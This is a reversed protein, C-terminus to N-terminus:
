GLSDGKMQRFIMILSRIYMAAYAIAMGAILYLPQLAFFYVGAAVVILFLAFRLGASKLLAVRDDVSASVSRYVHWTSVVVLLGGFLVSLWSQVFLGFLVASVSVTAVQWLLLSRIDLGQEANKELMPIEKSM